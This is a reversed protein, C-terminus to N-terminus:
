KKKNSQRGFVKPQKPPGWTGVSIAKKTPREEVAHVGYNFEEDENQWV